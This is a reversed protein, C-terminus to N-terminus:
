AAEPAARRGSARDRARAPIAFTVALAVLAGAASM